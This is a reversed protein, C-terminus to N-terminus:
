RVTAAPIGLPSDGYSLITTMTHMLGNGYPNGVPFGWIVSDNYKYEDFRQRLPERRPIGM